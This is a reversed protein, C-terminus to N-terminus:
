NSLIVSSKTLWVEIARRGLFHSVHDHQPRALTRISDTFREEAKALAEADNADFVHRTVGTHDM